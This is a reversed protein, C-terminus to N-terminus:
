VGIPIMGVVIQRKWSSHTCDLTKKSGAIIAKDHIWQAHIVLVTNMPNRALALRELPIM